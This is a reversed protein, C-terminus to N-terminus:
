NQEKTFTPTERYYSDRGERLAREKTLIQQAKIL